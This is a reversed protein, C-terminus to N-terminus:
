VGENSTAARDLGLYRRLAKRVASSLNITITFTADRATAEALLRLADDDASHDEFHYDLFKSSLRDSWGSPQAWKAAFVQVFQKLPFNFVPREEHFPLWLVLRTAADRLDAYIFPQDPAGPIKYLAGIFRRDYIELFWDNELDAKAPRDPDFWNARPEPWPRPLGTDPNVPTGHMFLITFPDCVAFLLEEFPVFYAIRGATALSFGAANLAAIIAARKFTTADFVRVLGPGRRETISRMAGVKLLERSARITLGTCGVIDDDTFKNEQYSRLAQNLDVIWTIYVLQRIDTL